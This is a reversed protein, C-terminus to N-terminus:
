HFLPNTLKEIKQKRNDKPDFFQYSVMGGNTELKNRYEDFKLIFAFTEELAKNIDSKKCYCSGMLKYFEDDKYFLAAIGIRNNLLDEIRKLLNYIEDDFYPDFRDEHHGFSLLIDSEQFSLILSEENEPNHIEIKNETKQLPYPYDQLIELVKEYAKM